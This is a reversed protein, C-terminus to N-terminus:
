KEGGLHARELEKITGRLKINAAELEYVPTNATDLKLELAARHKEAAKLGEEQERFVCEMESCTDKLAVITNHLAENKDHAARLKSELESNDARILVKQQEATIRTVTVGDDIEVIETATSM